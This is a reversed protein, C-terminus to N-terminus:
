AFHLIKSPGKQDVLAGPWHSKIRRIAKFRPSTLTAPIRPRSLPTNGKRIVKTKPVPISKCEKFWKPRANAYTSNGPLVIHYETLFFAM